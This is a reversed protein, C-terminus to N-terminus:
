IVLHEKLVKCLLVMFGATKIHPTESHSIVSNMGPSFLGSNLMMKNATAIIDFILALIPLHVVYLRRVYSPGCTSYSRYLRKAYRGICIIQRVSICIHRCECIIKRYGVIDASVVSIQLYFPNDASIVTIQRCTYAYLCAMSCCRSLSRQM